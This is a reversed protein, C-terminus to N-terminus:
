NFERTVCPCKESVLLYYKYMSNHPHKMFCLISPTLHKDINM